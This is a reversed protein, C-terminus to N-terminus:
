LKQGLLQQGRYAAGTWGSTRSQGSTATWRSALGTAGAAGAAASVM